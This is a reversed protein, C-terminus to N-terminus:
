INIKSAASVMVMDLSIAQSLAQAQRQSVQKYRLDAKNAVLITPINEPAYTQIQKKWVAISNFSNRNDVSFVLLIGMVSSYLSPM